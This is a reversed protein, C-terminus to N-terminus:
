RADETLDSVQICGPHGCVYDIFEPEGEETLGRALFKELAEPLLVQPDVQCFEEPVDITIRKM